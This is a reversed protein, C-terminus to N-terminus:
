ILIFHKYVKIELSVLKLNYCNLDSLVNSPQDPGPSVTGTNSICTHLMMTTACALTAETFNLDKPM